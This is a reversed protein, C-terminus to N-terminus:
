SEEEIFPSLAPLGQQALDYQWRTVGDPAERVLRFGLREYLDAVMHNKQTPTYEGVLQRVGTAAAERAFVGFMSQELDRGIVRCSLLWSDVEATDGHTRALFFGVVGHDTFRDRLRATFHLAGPEAVLGALEAASHRRSLVNFQNTKVVMQAVRPLTGADVPAFRASMELGRYFDELTESEEEYQKARARAQYSAARAADEETAWAQQLLPHARVTRVYEWSSEPLDIVEVEPLLARVQAREVPDDDVLILSDLGIGLHEAIRRLQEPKPEWSASFSSIDSLRLLMDPHEQFPSKADAPNNKSCVALIIGREKLARVYRQFRVFGEGADGGLVIGPIGAEGIVGGWLTNDLDLVLCKKSRGLDAAILGATERAPLPLVDSALPQKAMRWSRDDFWVLKGAVGALRDCDVALVDKGAAEALLTNVRVAMSYRSGPLRVDLASVVLDDPLAFLWHVVRARSNSRITRWLSRWRRVEAEVDKEPDTSHDPLGLEDHHVALVVFDPDSRYLASDPNTALSGYQGIGYVDVVAEIGCRRLAVRLVRGLLDATFSGILAVRVRPAGPLPEGADLIRGLSLIEGTNGRDVLAGVLQRLTTHANDRVAERARRLLDRANENESM